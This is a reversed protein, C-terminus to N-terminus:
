RVCIKDFLDLYRQVAIDETFDAEYAARGGRGLTERLGPDGILRRIAAAMKSFKAERNGLTGEILYDHAPFMSQSIDAKLTLIAKDAEDHEVLKAMTLATDRQISFAALGSIILMVVIAACGIALRVKISVQEESM